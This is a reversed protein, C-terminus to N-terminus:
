LSRVVSQLKRRPSGEVSLPQLVEEDWIERIRTLIATFLADKNEFHWYIAGKTIGAARGIEDLSTSVFGREAFMRICVNVIAERTEESRKAKASEAMFVQEHGDTHLWDGAGGCSTANALAAAYLRM